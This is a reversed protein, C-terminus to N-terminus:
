TADPARDVGRAVVWLGGGAGMVIASIALWGALGHSLPLTTVILPGLMVGVSVGMTFFGQYAGAAAPPTLAYSLSWTAAQGAVEGVTWGAVALVLLPVTTSAGGFQAAWMTVNGAAVALTAYVAARGARRPADSRRAAPLQLVIVLVTNMILLVTVLYTPAQTHATTWLPMAVEILALQVGLVASVATLALYRRDRFLAARRTPPNADAAEHRFTGSTRPMRRTMIATAAYLGAAALLIGRYTDSNDAVLAVTAFAAGAGIGANNAMYTMARFRLREPGDFERALVVSRVASGGLNAAGLLIALAMAQAYTAVLAYGAFAVCEALLLAIMITRPALRDALRGFAYSGVIGALSGITLLAGTQAVSFGLFRTLYLAMLTIFVGRGLSRVVTTGVLVQLIRRGEQRDNADTPSGAAFPLVSRLGVDCWRGSMATSVMGAISWGTSLVSM